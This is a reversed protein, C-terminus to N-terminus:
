RKQIKFNATTIIHSKVDEQQVALLAVTRPAVALPLVVALPDPPLLAAKLHLAPLIAVLVELILLIAAETIVLLILLDQLALLIFKKEQLIAIAIYMPLLKGRINLAVILLRITEVMLHLFM